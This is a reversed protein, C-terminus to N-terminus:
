RNKKGMKKKSNMEALKNQAKTLSDTQIKYLKLEDKLSDGGQKLLANKQREIDQQLKQNKSIDRQVEKVSDYEAKLNKTAAVVSKVSDLSQKDLTGKEKYVKLLQSMKDQLSTVLNLQAGLSENAEDVNKKQIEEKKAM